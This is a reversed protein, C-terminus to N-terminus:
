VNEEWDLMNKLCDEDNVNEYDVGIEFWDVRKGEDIACQILDVLEKEDRGRRKNVPTLDIYDLIKNKFFCNGTGMLNNFPHSPKEVLRYITNHHGVVSYTKSIRMKKDVPVVGCVGFCGNKEFYEKMLHHQPYQILEDGLMLLFSGRGIYERCCEIAHVIGKPKHQVAYTIPIGKYENGFHNIVTDAKYGVLLILEDIGIHSVNDLSRELIPKNRYSLMCKNGTDNLREGRGGALIVAKM